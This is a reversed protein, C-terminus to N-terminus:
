QQLLRSKALRQDLLSSEATNSMEFLEKTTKMHLSVDRTRNKYGVDPKGFKNLENKTSYTQNLLNSSFM